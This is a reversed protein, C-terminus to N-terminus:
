TPHACVLLVSCMSSGEGRIRRIAKSVSDSRRVSGMTRISRADDQIPFGPISTGYMGSDWAESGSPTLFAGRSPPRSDQDANFSPLESVVPTLSILPPLSSPPTSNFLIIILTVRGPISLILPCLRLTFFLPREMLALSTLTQSFKM